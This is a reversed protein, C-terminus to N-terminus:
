EFETVQANPFEGGRIDTSQTHNDSYEVSGNEVFSASHSRWPSQVVNITGNQGGCPQLPRRAYKAWTIDEKGRRPEWAGLM